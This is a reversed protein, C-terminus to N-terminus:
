ADGEVAREILAQVKPGIAEVILAVGEASPHIGDRQMLRGLAGPEDAAAQLPAFFDEFLLVDEPEALERYMADFAAKFEPGYNGPATLGALLVPLERAGAAELIAALNARSEGPDLGRLIDNGGLVVILADVDQGGLTWDIRAAGGATTDGSVGANIVEAPVDRADLWAQLQPVFGEGQALGYGQVLSDGLAVVSVPEARLPVAGLLLAALALKLKGTGAGYALLRFLGFAPRM